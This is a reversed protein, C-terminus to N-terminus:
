GKAKRAGPAGAAEELKPAYKTSANISFDVVRYGSDTKATTKKLEVDGFYKSTILSEMFQSVDYNSAASGEFKIHGDKEDLTRLSLNKPTIQALEDLMKVPGSRGKKLADLVALKKKLEEQQAKLSTVEGIIQDLRAIDAKTKAVAAQKRKLEDARSQAWMVNGVIGALLVVAFLVLQQKGAEKKKSVRVAVLNIRVM